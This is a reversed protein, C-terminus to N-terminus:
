HAPLLLDFKHLGVGTQLLNGKVSRRPASATGRFQMPGHPRTPSALLVTVSNWRANNGM